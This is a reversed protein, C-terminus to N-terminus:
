IFHKLRGNGMICSMLGLGSPNSCSYGHTSRVSLLGGCPRWGQFPQIKSQRNPAPPKNKCDKTFNCGPYNSWGYFMGYKGNKISLRGGCKPCTLSKAGSQQLTKAKTIHSKRAVKDSNNLSILKQFIQDMQEYSLYETTSNKLIYQYLGGSRIVPVEFTINKLTSNETFVIIPRYPISPFESLVIKLTKIHEWNQLVPNRFQYKKNYITQTWFDSSGNGFIWGQYNKTEIVFIGYKYILAIKSLTLFEAIM